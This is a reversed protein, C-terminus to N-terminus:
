FQQGRSEFSGGIRRITRQRNMVSVFKNVNAESARTAATFLYV